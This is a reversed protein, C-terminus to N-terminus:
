LLNDLSKYFGKINSEVVKEHQYGQPVYSGVNGEKPLELCFAVSKGPDPNMVVEHKGFMAGCRLCPTQLEAWSHPGDKITWFLPRIDARAEQTTLNEGM